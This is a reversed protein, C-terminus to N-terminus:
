GSLHDRTQQYTWEMCNQKVTKPSTQIKTLTSNYASELLEMSYETPVCSSSMLTCVPPLKLTVITLVRTFLINKMEGSATISILHPFFYYCVSCGWVSLNKPIFTIHQSCIQAQKSTYSFPLQCSKKFHIRQYTLNSLNAFNRFGFQCSHEDYFMLPCVMDLWVSRCQSWSHTIM